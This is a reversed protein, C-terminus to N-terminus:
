DIRINRISILAATQRDAKRSLLADHALRQCETLAKCLRLSQEHLAVLERVESETLTLAPVTERPVVPLTAVTGM